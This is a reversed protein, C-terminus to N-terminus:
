ERCAVEAFSILDPYEALPRVSTENVEKYRNIWVYAIGLEGAPVGDHFLSQAVHLVDAEHLPGKQTPGVQCAPKSTRDIAHDAKPRLSDTGGSSNDHMVREFHAHGPKYTGVDEATVVFDFTVEFHRATGAFLDRDINSLVGLRYRQKLRTLAENTDAFPPWDPLMEALLAARQPSVDVDFQRALRVVVTSLVDRYPRYGEAEVLAEAGVYSRFLEDARDTAVPGFIEGLSRILGGRWDILTGYCDFTITKTRRLVQKITEM